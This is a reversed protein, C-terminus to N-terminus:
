KKGKQQTFLKDISLRATEQEAEAKSKGKASAIKDEDMYFTSKFGGECRETVYRIHCKFAGQVLEQLQSKYNDNQVSQFNKLDLTKVIFNTVSEFNSDLYIAGILSEVIDCKISKSIEGKYSKGFKVFEGLGLRDFVEALYNEGVYHARLVTLKGEGESCHRFLYEGVVLDLLADGLFELRQYNDASLSAHTMARDFLTKDKFNYGFKNM